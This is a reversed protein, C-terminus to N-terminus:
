LFVIIFRRFYLTLIQVPLIVLIICFIILHFQSICGSFNTWCIREFFVSNFFNMHIINWLFWCWYIEPLLTILNSIRIELFIPTRSELPRLHFFTVSTIPWISYISCKIFNYTVSLLFFSLSIFTRPHCFLQHIFLRWSIKLIITGVLINIFVLDIITLNLFSLSIILNRFDYFRSANLLM